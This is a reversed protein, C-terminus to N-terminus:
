AWQLYFVWYGTALALVAGAVIAALLVLAVRRDDGAPMVGARARKREGLCFALVAAMLACFALFIVVLGATLPM